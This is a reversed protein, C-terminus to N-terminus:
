KPGRGNDPLHIVVRNELEEVRQLLDTRTPMGITRDLVERAAVTDGAKAAAVLAAVIARLDDDTVADLM